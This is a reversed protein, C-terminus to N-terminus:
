RDRRPDVVELLRPLDIAVDPNLRRLEAALERLGRMASLARVTGGAHVIRAISPGLRSARVAEVSEVPVEGAAFLSQWRLVKRDIVLEVAVGWGFAWWAVAVLAVVAISVPAPTDGGAFGYAVLSVACGTAIILLAAASSRPNRWGYLTARHANM